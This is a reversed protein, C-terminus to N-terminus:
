EYCAGSATQLLRETIEVDLAGRVDGDGCLRIHRCVAAADIALRVGRQTVVYGAWRALRAATRYDRRLMARALGRALAAPHDAVADHVASALGPLALSALAAADLSWARWATVEGSGALVTTPLEASGGPLFSMTAWDRWAIPPLSGPQNPFAEFAQAMVDSDSQHIPTQNCLSPAFVDPGLLRLAGLAPLRHRAEYVFSALVPTKDRAALAQTLRCALDDVATAYHAESFAGMMLEFGYSALPGVRTSGGV